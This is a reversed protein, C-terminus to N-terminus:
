IDISKKGHPFSGTRNNKDFFFAFHSHLSEWRFILLAIAFFDIEALILQFFFSFFQSQM